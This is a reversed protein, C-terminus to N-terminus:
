DFLGPVTVAPSPRLPRRMRDARAAHLPMPDVEPSLGLTDWLSTQTWAHLVTGFGFDAPLVIPRTRGALDFAVRLLDSLGTLTFNGLLALDAAQDLLLHDDDDILTDDNEDIARVKLICELEEAWRHAEMRDAVPWELGTVVGELLIRGVAALALARRDWVFQRTPVAEPDFAPDALDDSAFVADEDLSALMEEDDTRFRHRVLTWGIAVAGPMGFENVVALGARGLLTAPDDGALFRIRDRLARSQRSPSVKILSAITPVGPPDIEAKTAVRCGEMDFGTHM